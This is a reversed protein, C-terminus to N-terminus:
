KGGLAPGATRPPRRLAIIRRSVPDLGALRPDDSQAHEPPEVSDVGPEGDGREALRAAAKAHRWVARKVREEFETWEGDITRLRREVTELREVLSPPADPRKRFPWM